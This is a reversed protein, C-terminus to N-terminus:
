RGEEIRSLVAQSPQRVWACRGCEPDDGSCDDLHVLFDHNLSVRLAKAAEDLLSKMKRDHADHVQAFDFITTTAIWARDGTENPRFANRVWTEIPGMPADQEDEHRQRHKREYWDLETTM